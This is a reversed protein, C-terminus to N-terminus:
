MRYGEIIRSYNSGDAVSHFYPIDVISDETIGARRLGMGMGIFTSTEKEWDSIGHNRAISTVQRQFKTNNKGGSIYLVTAAAVDEKYIQATASVKEEDGGASSTSISTISTLSDLSTSVSDSSQELSYSVSCGTQLTLLSVLLGVYLYCNNFVM